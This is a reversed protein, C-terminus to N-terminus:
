RKIICRMLPSNDRLEGPLCMFRLTEYFPVLRFQRKTNGLKIWMDDSFEDENSAVLYVAEVGNKAAVELFGRVLNLGVHQERQHMEVFVKDLYAIRDSKDDPLSRDGESEVSHKM